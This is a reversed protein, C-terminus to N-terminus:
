VQNLELPCLKNVPRKYEKGDVKVIAARVRQDFGHFVQTVRGLKWHRGTEIPDLVIVLDDVKLNSTDKWWKNRGSYSQLVERQWRVWYHQMLIQIYKWRKTPHLAQRKDDEHLMDNTIETRGILFHNPTLPLPDRIDDSTSTLPRSNLLSEALCFCTELEEDTIASSPLVKTLARKAAKIMIEFVGGFHSAYPPNFAM